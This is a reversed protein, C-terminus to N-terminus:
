AKPLKSPVCILSLFFLSSRTELGDEEKFALFDLREHLLSVTEKSGHHLIAVLGMLDM